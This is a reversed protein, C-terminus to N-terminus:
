WPESIYKDRRHSQYLAVNKNYEVQKRREELDDRPAKPESDIEKVLPFDTLTSERQDISDEEDVPASAATLEEELEEETTINKKTNKKYEDCHSETTETHSEEAETTETHSEETDTLSEADVKYITVGNSLRQTLIIGKEILSTRTRYFTAKSMCMDEAARVWATKMEGRSEVIMLFMKENQSFSRADRIGWMVENRMYM